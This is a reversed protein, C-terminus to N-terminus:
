GRSLQLDVAGFPFAHICRLNKRGGPLCDLRGGEGFVDLDDRELMRDPQNGFVATLTPRLYM